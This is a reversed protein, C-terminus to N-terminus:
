PEPMEIQFRIGVILYDDMPEGAENTSPLYKWTAVSDMAAQDLGPWLSSGVVASTGVSGDALIRLCLTVRGEHGADRDAEPYVLGTSEVLRARRDEPASPKCGDHAALAEADRQRQAEIMAAREQRLRMMAEIYRSADGAAAGRSGPPYKRDEAMAPHLWALFVLVWLLRATMSLMM